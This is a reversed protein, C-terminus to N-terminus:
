KGTNYDMYYIEAPRYCQVGTYQGYAVGKWQYNNATNPNLLTFQCPIGLRVTEPDNRYLMYRNAGYTGCRGVNNAKM